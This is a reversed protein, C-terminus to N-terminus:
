WFRDLEFVLSTSDDFSVQGAEVVGEMESVRKFSPLRYYVCHNLLFRAVGSDVSQSYDM